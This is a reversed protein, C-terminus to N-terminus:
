TIFNILEPKTKAYGGFHYDENVSWRETVTNSRKLYSEVEKRIYNEAKLVQFGLATQNNKLSLIIGTLTAGTGCPCCIFDFDINIDAVIEKCGKIGLENSGGEPVMYFNEGSFQERAYLYLEKKNQYLTRSVYCLKMGCETAFKLTPNLEAYEEGRIIGITNFGAEKGAAATAAIHNSFAGGFTLVTKKGENRAEELNYKLKFFKNGSIHPHNLDLRLVFLRVNYKETIDDIVPQLPITPSDIQM